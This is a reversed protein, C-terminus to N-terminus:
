RGERYESYADIIANYLLDGILVYGKETFHVKDKKALLAEEWEKMSSEGGMIEFLDFVGGKCEKGLELFAKEAVAGNRNVAYGRRVRRFSDNNTIFLLACDPNVNLIRDVLDHYRKKFVEPSFNEPFADNIGLGFIVLDPRILALDREFDECKAFSPLSAGNVGVGTVSVGPASSDLLIGTLTFEGSRGAIAIRVSDRPSDLIFTVMSDQPMLVPFLTDGAAAVLVPHRDGGDPYGLVTVRDFLYKGDGEIPYRPVTSIVVAAEPDETTIAMGNLGLRKLPAKQTNRSVTWKGESLTTFGTPNNTGAASFPFVMGFGGDPMPCIGTFDNRLERTLTGGQVHSGGIHMIRLDGEKREILTEMKSFFVEFSPSRGQFIIRSQGYAALPCDPVTKKAPQAAAACFALLSVAAMITRLRMPCMQKRTNM